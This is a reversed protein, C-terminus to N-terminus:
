PLEVLCATITELRTKIRVVTDSDYVPLDNAMPSHKTIVDLWAHFSEVQARLESANTYMHIEDSDYAHFSALIKTDSDNYIM